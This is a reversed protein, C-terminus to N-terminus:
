KLFYGAFTLLCNHQVMRKLFQCYAFIGCVKKLEGELTGLFVILNNGSHTLAISSIISQPFAILPSAAILSQGEIAPYAEAVSNSGCLDQPASQLSVIM